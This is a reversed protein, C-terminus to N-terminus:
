RPFCPGERSSPTLAAAVPRVKELLAREARADSATLWVWVNLFNVGRRARGKGVVVEPKPACGNAACVVIWLTAGDTAHRFTRAAAVEQTPALRLPIAGERFARTVEDVTRPRNAEAGSPCGWRLTTFGYAVVGGGLLVALGLSV